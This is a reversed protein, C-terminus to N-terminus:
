GHRAQSVDGIADRRSRAMTLTLGLVFSISGALAPAIVYWFIGFRKQKAALFRNERASDSIGFSEPEFADQKPPKPEFHTLAAVRHYDFSPSEIDTRCERPVTASAIEDDAYDFSGRFVMKEHNAAFVVVEYEKVAWSRAPLLTIWGQAPEIEEQGGPYQYEFHILVSPEEGETLRAFGTIQFGTNGCRDIVQNEFAKYCGLDLGGENNEIWVRSNWYDLANRGLSEWALTWPSEGSERSLAFSKDPVAVASLRMGNEDYIMRHRDGDHMFAYRSPQEDNTGRRSHGSFEIIAQRYPAKLTDVAQPYNAAFQLWAERDVEAALPISLLKNVRKADLREVSHEIYDWYQRDLQDLSVGLIRQCDEAFTPRRCYAYLEFFQEGGFEQLLYEVLAGGFDYVPWDVSAYWESTLERLSVFEGRQKHNWARLAIFGPEYGSQSEAWGEVLVCPAQCDPGCHNEIAYHAAEHYDVSRLHKEGASPWVSGPAGCIGIGQFYWGAPWWGAPGFIPGCIWHIKTEPTQHLLHEMREIHRDMTALQEGPTASASCIMVAHRGEFRNPYHIRAVFDALSAVSVSVMGVPTNLARHQVYLSRAGYAFHAAFLWLSTTGLLLWGLALVRDPGRVVRRLALVLLTIAGALQILLLSLVPFFHPHMVRWHHLAWMVLLNLLWALWTILAAIWLSKSQPIGM